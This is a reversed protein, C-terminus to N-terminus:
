QLHIRRDADKRVHEGMRTAESDSPKARRDTLSIFLKTYEALITVIDRTVQKYRQYFQIKQAETKDNQPCTINKKQSNQSSM